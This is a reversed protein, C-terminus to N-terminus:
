RAAHAAEISQAAARFETFARSVKTADGLDGAADLQWAALVIRRTAGAAAPRALDPLHGAHRQDLALAADKGLLAPVYVAGFQGRTILDQIESVRAALFAVLDAPADPLSEGARATYPESAAVDPAPSAAPPPGPAARPAVPPTAPPATGAVAAGTVPAPTTPARTTVLVAPPEKSYTEFVFDFRDEPLRPDFQMKVTVKAPLSRLSTRAELWAGKKVPALPFTELDISRRTAPDFRERTVARGQFASASIPQTFNDYVYVRLVGPAPLTAEVHHWKNSAMFFQGGHKPNHDGHARPERVAKRPTGNACRGPEMLREQPQDACSWYLAVVVPLLERGDLPCRGAKAGVVVPHLPCSFAQDLRAPVLPMQCLPCKGPKDELVQAHEAMPCVYSVPPLERQGALVSPALLVAALAAAAIRQWTMGVLHAM